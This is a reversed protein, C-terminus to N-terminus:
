AKANLFNILRLQDGKRGQKEIYKRIINANTGEGVTSVYGGDSWFEGGWLEDKIEPFQKFLERATISKVIQMIRSPSYRPAAQMLIHVHDEDFGITEPCLFYRKQIEELITKMYNIYGENLFMDKRYKVVFMFHYKIVYVKHCAHKLQSM